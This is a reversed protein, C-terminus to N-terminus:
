GAQRAGFTRIAPDSHPRTPDRLRIAIPRFCSFPDSNVTVHGLRQNQELRPSGLCASPFAALTQVWQDEKKPM